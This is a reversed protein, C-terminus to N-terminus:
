GISGTTLYNRVRQSLTGTSQDRFDDLPTDSGVGIMFLRRLQPPLRQTMNNLGVLATEDAGIYKFKFPNLEPFAKGSSLINAWGALCGITGCKTNHTFYQSMEIKPTNAHKIRCQEPMDYESVIEGREMCEMVEILAAREVETIGLESAPKFNDEM